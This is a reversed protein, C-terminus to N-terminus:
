HLIQIQLPLLIMYMYTFYKYWTYCIFQFCKINASTYTVLLIDSSEVVKLILTRSGEGRSRSITFRTSRESWGDQKGSSNTTGSFAWNKETKWPALKENSTETATPSFTVKVKSSLDSPILSTLTVSTQLSPQEVIWTLKHFVLSM